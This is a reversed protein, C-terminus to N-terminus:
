KEEKGYLSSSQEADDYEWAGDVQDESGYLRYQVWATSMYTHSACLLCVLYVRGRETDPQRVLVRGEDDLWQTEFVMSVPQWNHDCAARDTGRPDPGSM